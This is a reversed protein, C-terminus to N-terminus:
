LLMRLGAFILKRKSRKFYRRAGYKAEDTFGAIIRRTAKGPRPALLMAAGAGILSGILLVGPKRLILNTIMMILRWKRCRIKLFNDSLRGVEIKYGSGTKFL